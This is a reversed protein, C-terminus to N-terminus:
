WLMQARAGWVRMLVELTWLAKSCLGGCAYPATRANWRQLAVAMTQRGGGGRLIPQAASLTGLSWQGAAFHPQPTGSMAQNQVVRTLTTPLLKAPVAPTTDLASQSTSLLTLSISDNEVINLEPGHMADIMEWERCMAISFARLWRATASSFPTDGPRTDGVVRIGHTANHNRHCAHPSICAVPVACHM